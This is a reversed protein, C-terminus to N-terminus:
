GGMYESFLRFFTYPDVVEFNYEPLEHQLQNYFNVAQTPTSIVSRLVYFGPESPNAVAAEKVLQLGTKGSHGTFAALVDIENIIPM